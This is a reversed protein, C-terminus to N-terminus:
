KENGQFAHILDESLEDFDETIWATGQWSGGPQRAKVEEHYPSLIAVPKGAKAIVVKEGSMVLNILQSLKSKPNTM